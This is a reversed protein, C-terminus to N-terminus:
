QTQVWPTMVLLVVAAYVLGLTGLLLPAKKLMGALSLPHNSRSRRKGAGLGDLANGNPVWTTTHGSKRDFGTPDGPM